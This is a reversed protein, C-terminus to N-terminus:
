RLWILFQVVTMVAGIGGVVLLMRLRQAPDVLRVRDSAPRYALNVRDGIVPASRNFVRPEMRERHGSRPHDYEVVAGVVTRNADM